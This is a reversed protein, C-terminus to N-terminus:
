ELGRTKAFQEKLNRYADVFGTDGSVAYGMSDCVMHDSFIMQFEKGNVYFPYYDICGDKQSNNIHFTFTVNEYIKHLEEIEEMTLFMETGDTHYMTVTKWDTGTFSDISANIRVFRIGLYVFLLVAIIAIVYIAKKAKKM